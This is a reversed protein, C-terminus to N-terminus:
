HKATAGHKVGWDCRWNVQQIYPMLNNPIGVPHEGIDGSPHAGVPNFYRLLMIRWKPDSAAVDRCTSICMCCKAITCFVRVPQVQGKARLVDTAQSSRRDAPTQCALRM